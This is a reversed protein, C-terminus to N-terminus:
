FRANDYDNYVDPERAEGTRLEDEDAIDDGTLLFGSGSGCRELM